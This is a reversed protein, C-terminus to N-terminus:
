RVSHLEQAMKKLQAKLIKGAPTAPLAPLIHIESPRKYPSLREKVYASLDEPKLTSGPALEVFAIVEENGEMERGVVASHVVESHTNLVSEVELPYVNFGSRIILEKSRGVIHVAADPDICVLDGTNFWGEPNVAQATLEPDRYYGRMVNPGRVWLEGIEGQAVDCGAADVVRAEVGPIIQGVSTDSRPSELRTRAVTPATETLGYGNHVPLGLLAEVERKLTPDLPAGGAYIFRLRPAVPKVGTAKVIDLMRAFMAPVGPMISIGDEAWAKLMAEASFRPVPYLCAGFSLALLMVSSLGFVHSMPLVAYVRDDHTMQNMSGSVNACFLLNRHTLMVGKPSGTTGSTYIMAAVQESGDAYVPEAACAENRAGVGIRGIVGADMVTAGHRECHNLADNSVEATYLVRRPRCHDRIVDIERPSLRANIVAAWADLEAAAFILAIWAACNEGVLMVRDGPRVGLERLWAATERVARALDAYTWARGPEVVAMEDPSRQEWHFPVRSIRRPLDVLLKDISEMLRKSAL